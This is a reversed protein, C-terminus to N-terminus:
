STPYRSSPPPPRKEVSDQTALDRHLRFRRDLLFSLWSIQCRAVDHILPEPPSPAASQDSFDHLASCRSEHSCTARRIPPVVHNVPPAFLFRVSFTPAPSPHLVCTAQPLLRGIMSWRTEHIRSLPAPLSLV